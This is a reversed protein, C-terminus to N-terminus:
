GMGLQYMEIVSSSGVRANFDVVLLLVDHEDVSDLKAQLDFFFQEKQEATSRFTLAYVSVVTVYVPRIGSQRLSRGM